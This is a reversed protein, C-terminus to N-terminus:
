NCCRKLPGSVKTKTSSVASLARGWLLGLEALRRTELWEQAQVSKDVPELGSVLELGMDAVLGPTREGGPDLGPETSESRAATSASVLM